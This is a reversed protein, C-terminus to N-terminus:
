NCYKAITGIVCCVGSVIAGIGLGILAGIWAEKDHFAAIGGGLATGGSVLLFYAVNSSSVEGGFLHFVFRLLSVAGVVLLLGVAVVVAWSLLSPETHLWGGVTEVCKNLDVEM